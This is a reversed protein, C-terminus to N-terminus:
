CIEEIQAAAKTHVLRHEESNGRSFALSLPLSLFKNEGQPINARKYTLVFNRTQKLLDLKLFEVLMRGFFCVFLIVTKRTKTKEASYVYFLFRTLVRFKARAAFKGRASANSEISVLLRVLM